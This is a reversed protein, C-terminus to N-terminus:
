TQKSVKKFEKVYARSVPLPEGFFEVSVSLGQANGSIRNIKQANVIYSRHIRVIKECSQLQQELQKLTIRKLFKRTEEGQELWVEVYNGDARAFLLNHPNLVFDDSKLQTTILLSEQTKENAPIQILGAMLRQSELRHKRELRYFNMPLVLLIILMGVLWANRMEEWFYLGSWNCPNDYIIDRILFNSVGVLLLFLAMSLIEKLPTWSESLRRQGWSVNVISFFTYFILAPLFTQFAVIALYSYRHEDLNVNFPKFVYVFGFALIGVLLAIKHLYTQRYYYPYPQNLNYIFQLM